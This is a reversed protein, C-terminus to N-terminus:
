QWFIWCNLFVQRERLSKLQDLIPLNSGLGAHVAIIGVYEASPPGRAEYVWKLNRLFTRHQEPMAAILGTRDGFRVGYSAFTSKSDFVSDNSKYM